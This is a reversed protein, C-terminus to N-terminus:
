HRGRRSARNRQSRPATSTTQGVPEGTRGFWPSPRRTLAGQENQRQQARSARDRYVAPTAGYRCRVAKAFHAPQRYGVLLAVQRVTLPQRALLEAANHLRV